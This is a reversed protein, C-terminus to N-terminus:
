KDEPGKAKFMLIVLVVAVAGWISLIIEGAM